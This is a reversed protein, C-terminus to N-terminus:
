SGFKFIDEYNEIPHEIGGMLENTAPEMWIPGKNTLDMPIVANSECLTITM